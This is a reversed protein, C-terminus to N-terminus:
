PRAEVRIRANLLRSADERADASVTNGYETSGVWFRSGDAHAVEALVSRRPHGEVSTFTYGHTGWERDVLSAISSLATPSINAM